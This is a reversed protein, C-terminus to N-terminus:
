LGPDSKWFKVLPSVLWTDKLTTALSPLRVSVSLTVTMTVPTLSEGLIAVLLLIVTRSPFLLLTVM